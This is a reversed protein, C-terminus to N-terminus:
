VNKAVKIEPHGPKTIVNEHFALKLLEQASPLVTPWAPDGYDEHNMKFIQYGGAELDGVAKIWADRALGAAMLGSSRFNGKAPIPWWFMKGSKGICLVLIVQKFNEIAAGDLVKGVNPTIYFTTKDKINELIFAEFQYQAEPRTRFARKGPRRVAVTSLIEEVDEDDEDPVIKLKELDDFIDSPSESVEKEIEEFPSKSEPEEAAAAVEAPSPPSPPKEGGGPRKLGLLSAPKIDVPSPDVGNGEVVSPPLSLEPEAAPEKSSIAMLQGELYSAIAVRRRQFRPFAGYTRTAIALKLVVFWCAAEGL